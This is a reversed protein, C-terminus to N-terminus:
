VKIGCERQLMVVALVDSATRAMSIVYAGLSDSPIEALVRMTDIVEKVDPTTDMGAPMLPRRSQLERLLFGLRQDQSTNVFCSVLFDLPSFGLASHSTCSACLARPSM